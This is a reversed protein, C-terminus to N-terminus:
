DTQTLAVEKRHGNAETTESAVESGMLNDFDDVDDFLEDLKLILLLRDDVNGVGEIFRTDVSLLEPTDQLADTETRLVETVGDVVLGVKGAELEVIIVRSQETAEQRPLGFRTRLDLVPLVEGRLNIVGEIYATANPISTVRPLKKIERVRMIDIGFEEGGLSFVVYQVEDNQTLESM